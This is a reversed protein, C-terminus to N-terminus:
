SCLLFNVIDALDAKGTNAVLELNRPSSLIKNQSLSEFKSTNLYFSNASVSRSLILSRTIM